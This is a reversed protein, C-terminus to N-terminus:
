SGAGKVAVVRLIFIIIGGVYPAILAFTVLLNVFKVRPENFGGFLVATGFGVFDM